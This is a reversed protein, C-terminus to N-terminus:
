IPTNYNRALPFDTHCIFVDRAVKSEFYRSTSRSRTHDLFWRVYYPKNGKKLKGKTYGKCKRNRNNESYTTWRLNSLHNNLSDGDIHDCCPKNLPNSKFHRLLLRHLYHNSSNGNGDTLTFRKYKVERISGDARKIKRTDIAGKMWRRVGTYKTNYIKGSSFIMLHPYGIVKKCSEFVSM